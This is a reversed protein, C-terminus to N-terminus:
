AHNDKTAGPQRWLDSFMWGIQYEPSMKIVPQEKFNHGHPAPEMLLYLSRDLFPIDVVDSYRKCPSYINPVRRRWEEETEGELPPDYVVKYHEKETFTVRDTYYTSKPIVLLRNKLVTRRFIKLM